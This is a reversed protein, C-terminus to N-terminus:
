RDRLVAPAGVVGTGIYGTSVAVDDFWVTNDRRSEHVYCLLGIRKLQVAESSRWRLGVYHLYLAGNLWVALEGDAKGVTNVAIRQEVCLWKGREPVFRHEPDPGLMNGWFHGDKDRRMEMWYTYCHLWGPAPTRQWDRWGELRSSFGDDGKPRLGAGGMGAWKDDGAVGSLTGGTHHLNGQDYDPAYRIWYRLHLVEFGAKGLWLSATAGRSKGDNATATLQLAGRGTHALAPDDVIRARGDDRGQVEFYDAFSATSEFEDAFVVKGPQTLRSMAAADARTAATVLQPPPVEVAPAVPEQQAAAAKSVLLFVVKSSWAHVARM